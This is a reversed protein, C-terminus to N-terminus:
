GQSRIEGPKPPALHTQLDDTLEEVAEIRTLIVSINDRGGSSKAQEVLAQCASQPDPHALITSAIGEDRLQDDLGDSCLLLVDGLYVESNSIDAKFQLKHGIFQTILSRDPHTRAEEETLKKSYKGRVM